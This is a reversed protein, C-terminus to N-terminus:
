LPQSASRLYGGLLGEEFLEWSLMEAAGCDVKECDWKGWGTLSLSPALKETEITCQTCHCEKCKCSSANALNILIVINQQIQHFLLVHIRLWDLGGLFQMGTCKIGECRIQDSLIPENAGSCSLAQIGPYISRRWAEFNSAGFYTLYRPPQEAIFTGM